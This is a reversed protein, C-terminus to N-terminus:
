RYDRRAVPVASFNLAESHRTASLAQAPDALPKSAWASISQWDTDDRLAEGDVQHETRFHAGCSEDRDLADLCMLEALELFDAVRGAKELALNMEQGSGPVQVDQWFEARLQRIKIVGETLGEASRILGCYQYMLQGLQRHFTLPSRKGGVSLLGETKEIVRHAAQTVCADTLAPLGAPRQSLYNAVSLPLTLWGDVSASLLSNAGLRNAGHYSFGAEGGVFLGPLSTMLDFDAWLGGMTFHASPAIRMPVTLPEEGIARRYMEFLNGYKKAMAISGQQAATETLDLYVANALNGVGHGSSIEELCARSAIDRPTLNGYAPYKRELFYDRDAEPIDVPNRDDGAQRPAWLRGDNRLSESMLITKSQDPSSVPLATPHFQVMSPNALYAGHQHARWAASANCNIALTSLHYVTGYGGSCIIVADAPQAYITGTALHRVIVGRARGDEVILDLMECRSHLKVRGAQTQRLLAQHAAIQLQQGTQGRAYYTRPVQVGGFLRKTLAGGYERAFPVALATLQDIIKESENALRFAEAERARFDGGTITDIVFQQQAKNPTDNKTGARVANIGGQAAGSHARRPSDHYTFVHVDFGLEGMAAAVGAGALGSGIVAVTYKGRDISGVSQYEARRRQWATAPDGLPIGSDLQSGPKISTLLSTVKTKTM